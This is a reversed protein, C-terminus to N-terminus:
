RCARQRASRPLAGTLLHGSRPGDPERSPRQGPNNPAARPSLQALGHSRDLLLDVSYGVHEDIFDADKTHGAARAALVSPTVREVVDRVFGAATTGDQVAARTPAVAGCSDHGAVVVPPCGLVRVGYEIGDAPPLDRPMDLIKDAAVPTHLPRARVRRGDSACRCARLTGPLAQELPPGPSM